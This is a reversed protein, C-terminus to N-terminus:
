SYRNSIRCFPSHVSEVSQLSIFAIEPLSDPFPVHTTLMVTFSEEPSVALVVTSRRSVFLIRRYIFKLPVYCIM